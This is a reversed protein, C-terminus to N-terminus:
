LRDAPTFACVEALDADLFIRMTIMSDTPLMTLEDTPFSVGSSSKSAAGIVAQGTNNAFSVNVTTSNPVYDLQFSGGMVRVALTAIATPRAFSVELECASSVPLACPVTTAGLAGLVKTRLKMMEDVPASNIKSTRPDYTLQRPIAM